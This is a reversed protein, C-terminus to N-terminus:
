RAVLLADIKECQELPLLEAMSFAEQLMMKRRKAGKRALHARFEEKHEPSIPIGGRVETIITEYAM